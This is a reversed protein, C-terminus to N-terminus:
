WDKSLPYMGSVFYPEKGYKMANKILEESDKGIIAFPIRGDKTEVSLYALYNM